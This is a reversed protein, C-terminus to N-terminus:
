KVLMLKTTTSQKATQLRAFYLGSALASGDFGITHSGSAYPQDAVSAVKQGAINFVDLVVRSAVPLDFHITTTPNFPNPYASLSLPSPLSVAVNDVNVTPDPGARVIWFDSQGPGFIFVSGALM